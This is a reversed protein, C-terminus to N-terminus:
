LGPLFRHVIDHAIVAVDEIFEGIDDIGFGM